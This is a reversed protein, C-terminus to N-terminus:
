RNACTGRRMGVSEGVTNFLSSLQEVLANRSEVHNDVVLIRRNSIPSRLQRQEGIAFPIELSFETGQKLESAVEITGGMLEVLKKTIVLGLGTGEYRRDLLEM